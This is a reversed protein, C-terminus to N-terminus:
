KKEIEMYLKEIRKGTKYDTKKGNLARSITSQNVNVLRAIEQQTLHEVEQLHKLIESLQM